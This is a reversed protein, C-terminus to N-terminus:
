DGSVASKTVAAAVKLLESAFVLRSKVANELNIEFRVRNGDFIFQIMGGQKTFDPMDSVTLVSSDDVAALITRMDKQQAQGIFLIHCAGSDQANPLRKVVVPKGEVSENVLASELVAGFPDRDIVCITFTGSQNAPAEKPWKVFKGFNYLYAAQVQEATPKTAQARLDEVMPHIWALLILIISCLYNVSCQRIRTQRKGTIRPTANEPEM